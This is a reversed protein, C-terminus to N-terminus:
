CTQPTARSEANGVLVRAVLGGVSSLLLGPTALATGPAYHTSLLCMKTETGWWGARVGGSEQWRAEALQRDTQRGTLHEVDKVLDLGDPRLLFTQASEGM